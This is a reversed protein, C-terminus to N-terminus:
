GLDKIILITIYKDNPYTEVRGDQYTAEFEALYWGETSLEETTFVMWVKGAEADVTDVARNITAEENYEYKGYRNSFRGARMIFKVTADTLDEATGDPKKLTAELAIRNDNRKLTITKM